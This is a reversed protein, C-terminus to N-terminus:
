GGVLGRMLGGMVANGLNWDDKLRNDQRVHQTSIPLFM